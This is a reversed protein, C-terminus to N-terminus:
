VIELFYHILTWLYSIGINIMIVCFIYLVHQLYCVLMYTVHVTIMYYM